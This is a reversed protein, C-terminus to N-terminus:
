ETTNKLSKRINRVYLDTVQGSVQMGDPIDVFVSTGAAIICDDGITVGANIFSNAGIVSNSGIKVQKKVFERSRYNTGVTLFKHDNTIIVVKPGIAVNNGIQLGGLAALHVDRNIFVDDGLLLNSSCRVFVNREFVVGQGCRSSFIKLYFRRFLIGEIGPIHKFLSWLYDDALSAFFEKFSYNKLIYLIL